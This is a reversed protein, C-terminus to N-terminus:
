SGTFWDYVLKGVVGLVVLEVLTVAVVLWLKGQRGQLRKGLFGPMVRAFDENMKQWAERFVSDPPKKGGRPPKHQQRKSM